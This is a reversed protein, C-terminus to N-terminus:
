DGGEAVFALLKNAARIVADNARAVLADNTDAKAAEAFKLKAHRYEAALESLDELYQPDM